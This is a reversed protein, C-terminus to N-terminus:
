AHDHRPKSLPSWLFSPQSVAFCGKWDEAVKRGKGRRKLFGKQKRALNVIGRSIGARLRSLIGNWHTYNYTNVTDIDFVQSTIKISIVGCYLLFLECFFVYSRARLLQCDRNRAPFHKLTESLKSDKMSSLVILTERRRRRAPETARALAPASPTLGWAKNRFAYAAEAGM